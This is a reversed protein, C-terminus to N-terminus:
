GPWCAALPRTCMRQLLQAPAPRQRQWTRAPTGEEATAEAVRRSDYAEVPERHLSYAVCPWQLTFPAEESAFGIAEAIYHALVGLSLQTSEVIYTSSGPSRTCSEGSASQPVVCTQLCWAAVTACPAAACIGPRTSVMTLKTYVAELKQWMSGLCDHLAAPAHVRRISLGDSVEACESEQEM